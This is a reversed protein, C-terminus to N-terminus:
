LRRRKFVSVELVTPGERSVGENRKELPNLSKTKNKNNQCLTEQISPQDTVQETASSSRSSRFTQRGGGEGLGLVVPM